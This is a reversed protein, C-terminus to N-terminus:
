RSVPSKSWSRAPASGIANATRRRSDSSSAFRIRAASASAAAGRSPVVDSATGASTASSNGKRRLSGHNSANSSCDAAERRQLDLAARSEEHFALAGVGREDHHAARDLDPTLAAVATDPECGDAGAAQEALQGQDVAARSGSAAHSGLACDHELEVAVRHHRQEVVVRCGPELEQLGHVSGQDRRQVRSVRAARLDSGVPEHRVLAQRIAVTLTEDLLDACGHDTVVGDDVPREAAAPDDVGVVGRRAPRQGEDLVEDAVLHQRHVGVRVGLGRRCAELRCPQTLIRAPQDVLRDATGLVVDDEEAPRSRRPRDVGDQPNEPEPNRSPEVVVELERLRNRCLLPGDDEDARVLVVRVLERPTLRDGVDDRNPLVGVAEHVEAVELVLQHVVGVPRELDAAEGRCRVHGPDDGVDVPYRDREM